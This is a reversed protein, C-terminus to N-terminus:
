FVGGKAVVSFLSALLGLSLGWAASRARLPKFGARVWQTNRSMAVAGLIAAALGILLLPNAVMAIIGLVLSVKAASNKEGVRQQLFRGAKVSSGAGAVRVAGRVDAKLQPQQRGAAMSSRQSISAPPAPLRPWEGVANRTEPTAPGSVDRQNTGKWGDRGTPQGQMPDTMHEGTIAAAGAPVLRHARNCKRVYGFALAHAPM